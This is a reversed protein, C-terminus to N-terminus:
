DAHNFPIITDINDWLYRDIPTEQEEGLHAVLGAARALIAVGRVLRTPIDIDRLLAAVAGTTNITIHREAQRDVSKALSTLAAQNSGATGAQVALTLLRVSRPDDPRHIHHGFGPVPTRRARYDRAIRDAAADADPSAVIEDLLTACGEVTGVFRSGVALLGAAVGAQLNEPSSSYVLRGAIASPTLGHEMLSILVANLVRSQNPSPDVGFTQRYFMDVFSRQGLVSEILDLDRYFIADTTSRSLRTTPPVEASIGTM